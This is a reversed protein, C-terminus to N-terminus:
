RRGGRLHAGARGTSRSGAPAAAVGRCCDRARGAARGSVNTCRSSTPTWSPRRTRRASLRIPTAASRDRSAGRRMGTPCRDAQDAARRDRGARRGASEAAGRPAGHGGAVFGGPQVTAAGVDGARTAARHATQRRRHGGRAAVSRPGRTAPGRRDRVRVQGGTADLDELAIQVAALRDNAERHASQAEELQQQEPLNKARHDIRSLEADLEALELLSRQQVVEAKM